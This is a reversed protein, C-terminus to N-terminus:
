TTFSLFVPGLQMPVYREEERVRPRRTMGCHTLAMTTPLAPLDPHRLFQRSIGIERFQGAHNHRALHHPIVGAASIPVAHLVPQAALRVQSRVSGQGQHPAVPLDFVPQKADLFIPEAFVALRQLVVM